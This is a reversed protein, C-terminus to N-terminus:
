REQSKRRRGKQVTKEKRPGDFAELEKLLADARMRTTESLGEKASVMQAVSLSMQDAGYKGEKQLFRVVQLIKESRDNPTEEPFSYYADLFACYRAAISGPTGSSFYPNDWEEFPMDPMAQLRDNVYEHPRIRDFGIEKSVRSLIKLLESVKATADERTFDDVLYNRGQRVHLIDLASLGDSSEVGLTLRAPPLGDAQPGM